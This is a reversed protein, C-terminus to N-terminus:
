KKTMREQIRSLATHMRSKVTGVPISLVEAAERYKMSQFFVLMVVQRLHESLSNLAQISAGHKEEQILRSDPSQCDGPVLDVWACSDPDSPDSPANLSVTARRRRRRLNDIARNTAIRYLWPRVKRGAEFQDRKLHVHLFTTQFTDEALQVDGLYRHLYSFLEREYRHVLLAFLQQKGSLRYELLLQEDSWELLPSCTTETTPIEHKTAIAM